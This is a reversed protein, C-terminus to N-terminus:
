RHTVVLNRGHKVRWQASGTIKIDEFARLAERRPNRSNNEDFVQAVEWPKWSKFIHHRFRRELFFM